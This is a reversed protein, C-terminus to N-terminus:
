ASSGSRLASLEPFLPERLKDINAEFEEPLQVLGHQSAASGRTYREIVETGLRAFAARHRNADFPAERLEDPALLTRLWTLGM